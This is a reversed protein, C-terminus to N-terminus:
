VGIREKHNGQHVESSPYFLFSLVAKAGDVILRLFELRAIWIM